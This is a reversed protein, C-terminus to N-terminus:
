LGTESEIVGIKDLRIQHRGGDYGTRLWRRVLETAATVGLLEGPICLVNANNHRRSLEATFENACLAARVGRFKNAVICMGIGTGCVLIGFDAEGRSVKRAVAEAVDPYDIQRRPSTSAPDEDAAEAVPPLPLLNEIKKGVLGGFKSPDGTVLVADAMSSPDSGATGAQSYNEPYLVECFIAGAIQAGRHDSGLAIRM